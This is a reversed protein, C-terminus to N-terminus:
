SPSANWRDSSNWLNLFSVVRFIVQMKTTNFWKILYIYTKSRYTNTIRIRM